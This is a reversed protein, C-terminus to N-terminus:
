RSRLTPVAMTLALVPEPYPGLPIPLSTVAEQNTIADPLRFYADPAVAVAMSEGDCYIRARQEPEKLYITFKNPHISAIQYTSKQSDVVAGGIVSDALMEVTARSVDAKAISSFLPVLADRVEDTLVFPPPTDKPQAEDGANQPASTKKQDGPEDAYLPVIFFLVVVFGVRFHM